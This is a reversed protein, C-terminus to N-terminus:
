QYQIFTNREFSMYYKFGYIQFGRTNFGSNHILCFCVISFMSQFLDHAIIIIELYMIM